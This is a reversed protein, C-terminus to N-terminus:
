RRGALRAQAFGGDYSGRFLRRRPRRLPVRQSRMRLRGPSSLPNHHAATLPAFLFWGTSLRRSIKDPSRPGCSAIKVSVYMSSTSHAKSPIATIKRSKVGQNKPCTCECCDGLDYGCAAHNLNGDCYGNGLKEYGQIVCEPFDAEPTSSGTSAGSFFAVLCLAIGWWYRGVFTMTAHNPQM